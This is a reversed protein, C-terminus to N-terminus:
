FPLGRLRVPGDPFAAGERLSRWMTVQPIEVVGDPQEVIVPRAVEAFGHRLYLGVRDTQCFLMALAPGMEAARDLVERIVQTSLGQGRHRASVIVGGIGVVPVEVNGVQVEALVLGASAVLRGEPGRLAVHRDKKRWALTNGVVGFPDVEDGELEARQAESLAGFEVLELGETL